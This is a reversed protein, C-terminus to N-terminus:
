TFVLLASNSISHQAARHLRLCVFSEMGYRQWRLNGKGRSDVAQWVEESEPDLSLPLQLADALRMTEQLLRQSSGVMGGSIQLTKPPFLVAAFDQPVYYGEADSHCILHDFEGVPQKRGFLRSIWSPGSNEFRRFYEELVPDKSSDKDGPEPLKGRLSLHAALRRLHHLSSYGGMDASYVPCSEPERHVALGVAALHGNFREIEDRFRQAAEEDNERMDALYGVEISLGM